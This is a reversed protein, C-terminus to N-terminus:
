YVGDSGKVCILTESKLHILTLFEGEGGEHTSLDTDEMDGKMHIM